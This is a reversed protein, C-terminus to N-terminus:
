RNEVQRGDGISSCEIAHIGRSAYSEGLRNRLRAVGLDRLAADWPDM